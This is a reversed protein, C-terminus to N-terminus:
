QSTQQSSSSLKGAQLEPPNISRSHHSPYSPLFPVGIRQIKKKTESILHSESGPLVPERWGAPAAYLTKQGHLSPALYLEKPGIWRIGQVGWDQLLITLIGEKHRRTGPNQLYSVSSVARCHLSLPFCFLKLRTLPGRSAHVLELPPFPLLPCGWRTIEEPLFHANRPPM